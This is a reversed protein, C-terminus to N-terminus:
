TNSAADALEGARRRAREFADAFLSAVGHDTLHDIAAATTGGPSTVRARLTAVSSESDAAIRAAATATDRVMRRVTDTDLGFDRGAQELYEMLLFFYAPGSGSIATVADIDAEEAVWFASGIANALAEITDREAPALGEHTHLGTASHGVLAGQNPMSRVVRAGGLWGALDSSRVGAAISLYLPPEDVASLARAVDPMVQPKVALVAIDAWAAVTANDDGVELGAWAGSLAQRQAGDPEAVRIDTAPYGSGILGAIMARAMNGGGIFGIKAHEGHGQM